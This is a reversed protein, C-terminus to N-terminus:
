LNLKALHRNNYYNEIHKKISQGIVFGLRVPVANGIHIGLKKKSFPEEPNIFDYSKPFTQLLAGERFSIARDQEPHGFRGTGYTFFQTTITPAPEDWSMRGYVTSYSQGSKKKHCPTKLEEDWDKWTGGPKSQRIRKKNIPSLSATRHLPDKYSVEGDNILELKEITSRVTRYRSSAHTKPILDIKGLKSAFLVLRKRAQPIGYDPCYVIEWSVDYGLSELDEVFDTFVKHKVIQPVNEMSVIEPTVEKILRTFSYLLKWRADKKRNENKQTYCSFPQCPACGVLVKIGREPYLKKLTSGSIDNIDRNIFLTRNNKVYAYRCQEDSDVGAYVPIGAKILGHTMGGIGCFLDIATISFNV